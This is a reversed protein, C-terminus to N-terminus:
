AAVALRAVGNEAGVSSKYKEYTGYPSDDEKTGFPRDDEETAPAGSGITPPSGGKTRPELCLLARELGNFTYVRKRGQVDVEILKRKKLARIRHGIHGKELGTRESISGYSPWPQQDYGYRHSRIVCILLYDIADLDLKALNDVLRNPVTFYDSEHWLETWAARPTAATTM